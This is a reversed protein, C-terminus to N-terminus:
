FVSTESQLGEDRSNFPPGNERRIEHPISHELLIKDLSPIVIRSSVSEIVEAVPIRSYDEIVVLLYDGTPLEDFEISLETWPVPTIFVYNRTTQPVTAQCALCSKVLDEVM